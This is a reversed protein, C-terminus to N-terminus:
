FSLFFFVDRLLVQESKCKAGEIKDFNWKGTFTELRYKYNFANVNFTSFLKDVIKDEQM